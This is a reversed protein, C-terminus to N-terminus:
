KITEIWDPLETQQVHDNWKVIFGYPAREVVLGVLAGPRGPPPNRVQARRNHVDVGDVYRVLDGVEVKM